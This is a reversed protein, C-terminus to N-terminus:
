SITIEQKNLRAINTPKILLFDDGAVNSADM